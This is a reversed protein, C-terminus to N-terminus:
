AALDGVALAEFAAHVRLREGQGCASRARWSAACSRSSSRRSSGEDLDLDAAPEALGRRGRGVEAARLHEVDAAPGVLHRLEFGQDSRAPPANRWWSPPMSCLMVSSGPRMLRASQATKGDVADAVVGHTHDFPLAPRRGLREDRQAGRAEGAQQAPQGGEVPRCRRFRRRSSAQRCKSGADTRVALGEETMGRSLPADLLGQAM